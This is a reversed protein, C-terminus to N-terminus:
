GSTLEWSFSPRRSPECLPRKSATDHAGRQSIRDIAKAVMMPTIMAVPHKGLYPAIDRELAERSKRYHIPAWEARQKSLWAEMVVSFTSQGETEGHKKTVARVQVPDRGESILAKVLERAERAEELTAGQPVPYLRPKGSYSYKVRWLPTGAASVQLYLGGGDSLKGGPGAKTHRDVDRKSLKNIASM